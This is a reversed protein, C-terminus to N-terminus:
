FKLQWIQAGFQVSPLTLDTSNESHWAIREFSNFDKSSQLDESNKQVSTYAVFVVGVIVGIAAGTWINSVHNSPTEVFSLTSLGLVAGAAGAGAVLMIDNQTSKIIDDESEQAHVPSFAGSALFFNLSLLVSIIKKM